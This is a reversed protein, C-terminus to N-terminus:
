RVAFVQVEVGKVLPAVLFTLLGMVYEVSEAVKYGVFPYGGFVGVAVMACAQVKVRGFLNVANYDAVAVLVGVPLPM